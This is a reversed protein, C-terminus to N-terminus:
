YEIFSQDVLFNILENLDVDTGILYNLDELPQYSDLYDQQISSDIGLTNTFFEKLTMHGFTNELQALNTIGALPGFGEFTEIMDENPVESMYYASEKINRRIRM